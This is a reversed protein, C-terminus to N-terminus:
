LPSVFTVFLGLAGLAMKTDKTTFNIPRKEGCPACLFCLPCLPLVLHVFLGLTRLAM